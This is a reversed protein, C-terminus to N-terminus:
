ATCADFGWRTVGKRVTISDAEEKSVRLQIDGSTTSTIVVGWVRFLSDTIAGMATPLTFTDSATILITHVSDTGATGSVVECHALVTAGTPITVGFGIGNTTAAADGVRGRFEFHITRTAPAPVTAGYVSEKAALTANTAFDSTTAPYYTM